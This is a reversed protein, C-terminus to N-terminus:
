DAHDEFAVVVHTTLICRPRCGGATLAQVFQQHFSAAQASVAQYESGFRSFLSAVATSVEDAAAAVVGTTQASAAANAASVASGVVTLGSAADAVTEPVAFVFSM